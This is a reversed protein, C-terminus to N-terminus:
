YWHFRSNEYFIWVTEGRAQGLWCAHGADAQKGDTGNGADCAMHYQYDIDYKADATFAKGM